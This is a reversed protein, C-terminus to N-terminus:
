IALENEIEWIRNKNAEYENQLTQYQAQQTTLLEENRAKWEQEKEQMDTQLAAYQLRLSQNDRELGQVAEDKQSLQEQWKAKDASYNAENEEIVRQQAEQEKAVQVQAYQQARTLQERLGHNATRLKNVRDILDYIRSELQELSVNM